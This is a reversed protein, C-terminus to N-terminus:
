NIEAWILSADERAVEEAEKLSIDERAEETPDAYKNLIIESNNEKANIATWGTIKKM